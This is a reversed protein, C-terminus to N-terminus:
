GFFEILGTFQQILVFQISTIYKYPSKKIEFHINRLSLIKIFHEFKSMQM